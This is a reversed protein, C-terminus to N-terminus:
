YELIRLFVPELNAAVSNSSHTTHLNGSVLSNRELDAITREELFIDAEDLLLVLHDTQNLLDTYGFM